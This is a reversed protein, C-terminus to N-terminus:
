GNVALDFETEAADNAARLRKSCPRRFTCFACNRPNKTIPFNAIDVEDYKGNGAVARIDCLSRYITDELSTMSDASVRHSIIDPKLLQVELIEIADPSEVNWSRHNELAWAYLAGQLNADGVTGEYTKWEVITPHGYRRFYLLDIRANISVEDYKVPVMLEAFLPRHATIQSHLDTMKSLNRLAREADEISGNIDEELLVSGPEHGALACYDNGAKTKTMQPERYRQAASFALQRNALDRMTAIIAEWDPTQREKWAPVVEHEITDHVLNGRWLPLSKQQKLLFAERRLPDRKASHHAAIQGYYYQRPCRAFTRSASFSWRM